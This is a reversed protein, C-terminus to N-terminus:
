LLTRGSRTPLGQIFHIIWEEGIECATLEDHCPIFREGKLTTLRHQEGVSINADMSYSVRGDRVCQHATLRQEVAEDM